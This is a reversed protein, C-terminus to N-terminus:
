TTRCGTAHKTPDFLTISTIHQHPSLRMLSFNLDSHLCPIPGLPVPPHGPTKPSDDPLVPIVRDQQM